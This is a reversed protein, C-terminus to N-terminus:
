FVHTPYIPDRIVRQFLFPILLPLLPHLCTQLATHSGRLCLPRPLFSALSRCLRPTSSTLASLLSPCISALPKRLALTLPWQCLDGRPRAVALWPWRLPALRQILGRPFRLLHARLHPPRRAALQLRRSGTVPTRLLWPVGWVRTKERIRGAAGGIWMARGPARWGHGM